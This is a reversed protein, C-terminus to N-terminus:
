SDRNTSEGIIPPSYRQDGGLRKFYALLVFFGASAVVSLIGGALFTLPYRHGTKDLLVGMAPPVLMTLLGLIIQAASAFQAFTEKPFLRQGISATGTFYLGTVVVHAVFGFAFTGPTKAFLAGWFCLPIYLFLSGIAIRLPHVRDALVGVPYSVILSLVFGIALAKGYDDLGMGVSKAYFISFTNVPAFAVIALASVGFLWRYYPHYFCERFYQKVATFFGVRRTKEPPQPYAGEKVRLCMLGFGLGYIGALALFMQLLHSEAKGMLFFNFGIGVGLSVIRFLGFFRGLMARPVVDNILALFLNNGTIAAIEFAVWCLSFLVLFCGPRGPSLAGLIQHLWEGAAPSFALGVMSAAALPTSILLFPIRRGLKSRHRDSRYGIIPSILMGMAAPFSGVLLGVLADSAGGGKLMIQALPIVTRERANWAFDGMLLWTFLVVLGSISYTLTGVKWVAQKGALSNESAIPM